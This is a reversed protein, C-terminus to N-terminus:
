HYPREGAITIRHMERRHGAYDNLAWHELCRNDWIALTGPTWRFRICNEPQVAQEHLWNLLPASEAETMDAFRRSYAPDIFLAKRGSDPHTRVAPHLVETEARADTVTKMSRLDESRKYAGLGSHVVQLGDLLRRMGDSLREYASYMSAWLTDGGVPPLEVAYLMSAMPPRPLFSFDSHWSGGFNFKAGEDAEKIVRVIEPHDAWPTIFPIESLPGFRRAFAIQQEPTITQGRFFIVSHAVFARHIESFVENGLDAGLDVGTIEAGLAPSIPAVGIHDYTM